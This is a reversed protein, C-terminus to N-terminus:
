VSALLTRLRHLYTHDALIHRRAAVTVSERARENKFYYDVKGSLEEFSRYTAYEDPNFLEDFDSQHDSLIFAGSMPVDFVRQNLATPMQCSTVNLNVMVSRYCDSIGTRYDIDPHATVREGCLARWGAVDGFTEIGTDLLRGVAEKRKLMSAYHIVYSRLWTRTHTDFGSSGYGSRERVEDILRDVEARPEALLQLAAEHSLAAYEPRWIFRAAIEDLFRGGMSTGIFACRIRCEVATDGPLRHTDAALPLYGVSRFGQQSLWPLYSREWTYAVMNRTLSNRHNLLIPRPDDVFWIVVPIGTRAAYEALIGNGDFGLMNISVIADPHNNQLMKQLHSEYENVARKQKYHFVSIDTGNEVAAASLEREVFFDGQMLLLAKAPRRRGNKGSPFPQLASLYFDPHAYFSAPHKVIQVNEGSRMFADVRERVHRGSDASVVEIASRLEAPFLDIARDALERYYELVLFRVGTQQVSAIACKLHYGLGYGALVIRDGWFQLSRYYDAEKEPEILSHLHRSTGDSGDLRASPAGSRSTFMTLAYTVDSDSTM